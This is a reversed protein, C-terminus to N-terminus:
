SAQRVIAEIRDPEIRLVARLRAWQSPVMTWDRDVFVSNGLKRPGAQLPLAILNGFGGAPMTDQNPFLRDYSEFSLGPRGSMTETIVHSGLKRALSANVPMAFFFWIHAGNGSRSREVYAPIALRECTERVADVDDKWTAEDFDMALFWCTEDPLMPYVGITHRGELHNQVAENSLPLFARNQCEGCKVKPLACLGNVFKNACVPSYGSKGDRKREFRVPFVDERGRFLDRFLAVKQQPTLTAATNAQNKAEKSFTALAARACELQKTLQARHQDLEALERSLRGIRSMM